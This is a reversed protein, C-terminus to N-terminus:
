VSFLVQYFRFCAFNMNTDTHEYTIDGDYKSYELTWFDMGLKIISRRLAAIGVHYINRFSSIM